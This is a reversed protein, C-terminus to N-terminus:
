APGTAGLVFRQGDVSLIGGTVQWAGDQKVASVTVHGNRWSGHVDFHLSARGDGGSETVPGAVAFGFGMVVGLQQEVTADTRLYAAAAKFAPGKSVHEVVSLGVATTAALLTVAVTILLAMQRHRRLLGM